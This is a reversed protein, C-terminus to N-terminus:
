FFFLKFPSIGCISTGKTGASPLEIKANIIKKMGMIVNMIKNKVPLCINTDM